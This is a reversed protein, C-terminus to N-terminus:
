EVEFGSRIAQLILSLEMVATNRHEKRYKAVAEDSLIIQVQPQSSVSIVNLRWRESHHKWICRPLAHLGMPPSCGNYDKVLAWSGQPSGTEEPSAWKWPREETTPIILSCYDKIAGAM